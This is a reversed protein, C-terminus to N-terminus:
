VGNLLETTIGYRKKYFNMIRSEYRRLWDDLVMLNRHLYKFNDKLTTFVISSYGLSSLMIIHKKKWFIPFFSNDETHRQKLSLPSIPIGLITKLFSSVDFQTSSGLSPIYTTKGNSHIILELFYMRFLKFITKINSKIEYHEKLKHLYETPFQYGKLLDSRKSLTVRANKFIKRPCMIEYEIKGFFELFCIESEKLLRRKFKTNPLINKLKYIYSKVAKKEKSTVLTQNSHFINTKHISIYNDFPTFNRKAYNYINSCEKHIKTTDWSNLDKSNVNCEITLHIFDELSKKNHICWNVLRWQTKDGGVRNGNYIKFRDLPSVYPIESNSTLKSPRYFACVKDEPFLTVNMPETLSKLHNLIENNDKLNENINKFPLLITRNLKFHKKFTNVDRFQYDASFPLRLAHTKSRFEVNINPFNQELYIKLQDQILLKNHCNKLKFFIHLGRHIKSTEIFIIDIPIDKKILNFINQCLEDFLVRRQSLTTKNKTFYNHTDIDMGIIESNPYERLAVNQNKLINYLEEIRRERHLYRLGKNKLHQKNIFQSKYHYLIKKRVRAHPISNGMTSYSRLDMNYSTIRTTKTLDYGLFKSLEILIDEVDPNTIFDYNNLKSIPYYASKEDELNKLLNQVRESIPYKNSIM